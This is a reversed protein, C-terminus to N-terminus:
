GKVWGRALPALVRAWFHPATGFLVGAALALPPTLAVIYLKSRHAPAVALLGVPLLWFAALGVYFAPPGWGGPAPGDVLTAGIALGMVLYILASPGLLARLLKVFVNVCRPVNGRGVSRSM